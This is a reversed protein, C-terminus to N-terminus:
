GRLHARGAGWGVKKAKKPRLFFPSKKPTWGFFTPGDGNRVGSFGGLKGPLIEKLQKRFSVQMAFFATKSKFYGAQKLYVAATRVKGCKSVEVWDPEGRGGTVPRKSRLDAPSPVNSSAPVTPRCAERSFTRLRLFAPGSELRGCAFDEAPFGDLCCGFPKGDLTHCASKASSLRTALKGNARLRVPRDAGAFPDPSFGAAM